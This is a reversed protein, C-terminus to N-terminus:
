ACAAEDILDDPQAHQYQDKAGGGQRHASYQGGEHTAQGQATKPKSPDDVAPPAGQVGVADQLAAYPQISQQDRQQEGEQDGEILDGPVEKVGRNIYEVEDPKDQHHGDQQDRRPQAPSM